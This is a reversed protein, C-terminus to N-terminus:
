FINFENMNEENEKQKKKVIQGKSINYSIRVFFVNKVESADMNTLETYFPTEIYTQRNYNILFNIPLMYFALVNLRKKMFSKQLMLGWFNIRSMNYGQLTIRKYMKRQYMLGIMTNKKQFMYMLNSNGGWDTFSNDYNQYAMQSNFIKINNRWFIKKGFPITFSTKIGYEGFFGVNDYTYILNEENDKTLIQAIYGSSFNYFTEFYMMGGLLNFKLSTKNISTPKLKPNGITIHIGDYSVPHPNVQNVSPYISSTRYKFKINFMKSFKYQADVYPQWINFSYTTDEVSPTSIEYAIGAKITFNNNIALTNYAFLRNRFDIYSSTNKTSGNIQETESNMLSYVNGYGIQFGWNVFPTYTWDVNYMITKTTSNMNTGFLFEPPFYSYSTNTKSQSNSLRFDSSLISKESYNGVYFIKTSFNRNESKSSLKYFLQNFLTDDVFLRNHYSGYNETPPSMRLSSEFSLVHIPNIKFDLGGVFRIINMEFASNYMNSDPPLMETILTDTTKIINKLGGRNMRFNRAQLYFITKRASYNYSIRGGKMPFLFDKDKTDADITGMSALTLEHGRYNEKLIINIIATYGELGYRGGPDRIIEIKKIRDPNMNKIYEEDKELGNVMFIINESNDVEIKDDYRDYSIGNIRELVDTATATGAKLKETVIIEDKDILNKVSAEKVVVTKLTNTQQKLKIIGLPKNTNTIKISITDTKYGMFRIIVNYKGPSVPISFFGKKNTLSFAVTSDKFNKIIVPCYPIPEKEKFDKVQGSITYKTNKNFSKPQAIANFIFLAIASVTLFIKKM